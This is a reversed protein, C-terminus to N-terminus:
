PACFDEVAQTLLVNEFAAHALEPRGNALACTPTTQTWDLALLTSLVPAAFSTGARYVDDSFLHWAGPVTVEGDNSNLWFRLGNGEDASVSIVEPWRAPYFPEQQKFNGASAVPVLLYPTEALFDRLPDQELQRNEFLRLVALERAQFGPVEGRGPPVPRPREPTSREQELRSRAEAQPALRGEVNTDLRNSQIHAVRSDALLSLAYDRNGGTEEILSRTPQQSRRERFDNFDFGRSRDECPIFVFSMNLVFREIGEGALEDLTEQLRPVILDASFGAQDAINVTALSIAEAAEPPLHEILAEFVEYVLWGHSLVEADPESSFDDMVLIAVREQGVASYPLNEMIWVADMALDNTEIDEGEPTLGDGGTEGEAGATSAFAQGLIQDSTVPCNNRGQGRQGQAFVSVTASL